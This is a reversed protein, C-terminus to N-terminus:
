KHIFSPKYIVNVIMKPTSIVNKIAIKVAPYLSRGPAVLFYTFFDFFLVVEIM